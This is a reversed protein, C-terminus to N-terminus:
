QCILLQKCNPGHVRYLIRFNAVACSVNNMILSAQGTCDETYVHVTLTKASCNKTFM